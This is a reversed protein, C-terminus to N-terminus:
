TKLLEERVTNLREFVRPKGLLELCDFLPPSVRKGTVAVRVPQFVEKTKLGLRGVLARLAEEIHEVDYPEVGSLTTGAAELVAPVGEVELVAKKDEPDLAVTREFLFALMGVAEEFTGTRERVTSVAHEFWGREGEPLSEGVFGAERLYPILADTLEPVSMERIYLGNIWRLKGPDFVAPSKTVRDLSFVEVLKDRPIVTTKEDFSWGLLALYNIFADPLYGMRHYESVSMAGHRKSLPTRDDGLILPLHAFAPYPWGLAEYVLIQRPTNSLHDEGRIVHTIEMDHDDVVVAFNYTPVGDGRVLVFDDLLSNEFTVNGRILDGVVTHGFDPCRFRVVPKRGEAELGQKEDASLGFCKRDYKFGKGAAVVARRREEVEEPTCYCLYANGDALLRNTADGYLPLRDMQHFPGEDWHMGLWKMSDIIVAVAEETSRTRDTDEIRLVFTGGTHRAYLWNFLATRAGGIHLHGTPSPAFRVRPKM